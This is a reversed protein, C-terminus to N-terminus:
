HLLGLYYKAEPNKKDESLIERLLEAAKIIKKDDNINDRISSLALGLKCELDGKEAGESYM